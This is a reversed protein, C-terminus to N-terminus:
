TDVSTPDLVEITITETTDGPAFTLTGSLAVYDVGGIM